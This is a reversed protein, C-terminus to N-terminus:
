AEVVRARQQDYADHLAQAAADRIADIVEGDVLASEAFREGGHVVRHGVAEIEPLVDRDPGDAERMKDLLHELAAAHDPAKLSVREPKADGLRFSALSSVAGIREVQGAALTRGADADLLDIKLSSSGANLVLVIM